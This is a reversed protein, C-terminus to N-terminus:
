YSQSGAKPEHYSTDFEFGLEPFAKIKFGFWISEGKERDVSYIVDMLWCHLDRSITYQQESLGGGTFDLREYVRFKWKPNVRYAVDFTFQNDEDRQYRHGVGLSFKDGKDIYFDTGNTIVQGRKRDYDTDIDFRLGELPRLELYSSLTDSFYGGLGKDEFFYSSSLIHSILDISTSGRKTQLKNELAIAASNQKSISDISDFNHLHSNSVTPQHIYSYEVIPNIIHRLGNIEAGLFEGKVDFVKFFRTSIDVGSYFIGRLVDKNENSDESYYTSRSGAYPSVYLFGLKTPYTFNNFTDLRNVIDDFAAGGPEEKRLNSFKNDSKFYLRSEGLKFNVTELSVEPLKEITTAFDNIHKEMLFNLSYLDQAETFQMYTAPDSVIEHEREFYDKLFEADKLKNYQWLVTRRPDIQWKHRYEVRFREKEETDRPENYLHRTQINREHMYYTRLLGEGFGESEYHLDVGSASDKRERYDLHLRGSAYKTLYFRWATLLYLGWEKDKGPIVTVRPRRDNLVQVYRPLTIIPWNGIFLSADEAIIRDEPFILLRKSVVRWHPHDLDCTTIYSRRMILQRDSIKKSFPGKSYFPPSEINANIITGTNKEFNYVIKDGELIGKEYELRVNGQAIVDNKELYVVVKDAVLNTGKYNIVVNGEAIIKKEDNFFEVHEGDVVIPIKAEQSFSYSPLIIFLFFLIFFTYRQM